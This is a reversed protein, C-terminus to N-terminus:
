HFNIDSKINELVNDHQDSDQTLIRLNELQKVEIMEIFSECVQWYDPTIQENADLATLIRREQKFLMNMKRIGNISNAKQWILELNAKKQLRSASHASVLSDEDDEKGVKIPTSSKNRKQNAM